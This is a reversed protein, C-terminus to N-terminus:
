FAIPKGLKRRVVTFQGAHMMVHNAALLLAGGLSPVM